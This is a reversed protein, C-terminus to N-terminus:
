RDGPVHRFERPDRAHSGTRRVTQLWTSATNASPICRTPLPSASRGTRATAPTARRGTPRVRDARRRGTRVARRVPERGRLAPLDAVAAVHGGLSRRPQIVGDGDSGDSRRASGGARRRYRQPTGSVARVVVPGPAAVIGAPRASPAHAALQITPGSNTDRAPARPRSRRRDVIRRDRREDGAGDGAPDHEERARPPRARVSPMRHDGDGVVRDRTRGTSRSATGTPRARGAPREQGRQVDRQLLEPGVREGVVVESCRACSSTSLAPPTLVTSSTSITQTPRGSRRPARTGRTQQLSGDGARDTRHRGQEDTLRSNAHMWKLGTSIGPRNRAPARTRYRGRADGAPEARRDSACAANLVM